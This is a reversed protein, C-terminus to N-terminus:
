CCSQLEDARVRLFGRMHCVERKDYRGSEVRGAVCLKHTYTLQKNCAHQLLTDYWARRMNSGSTTRNSHLKVLLLLIRAVCSCVYVGVGVCACM